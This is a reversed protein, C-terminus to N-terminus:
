GYIAEVTNIDISQPTSLGMEDFYVSAGEGRMITYVGNMTTHGLGLSHGMEHCAIAKWLNDSTSSGRWYTNLSIESHELATGNIPHEYDGLTETHLGDWDTAGYNNMYVTVDASNYSITSDLTIFDQALNWANIGSRIKTSMDSGYLSVISTSVYYDVTSKNWYFGTRPLTSQTSQQVFNSEMSTGANTIGLNAGTILYYQGYEDDYETQTLYMTYTKGNEMLPFDNPINRPNDSIYAGTQLVDYIKNNAAQIYSHTFYLNHRQEVEQSVVTGTIFIDADNQLEAINEYYDKREVSIYQPNIPSASQIESPEYACVLAADTTCILLSILILVIKKAKM